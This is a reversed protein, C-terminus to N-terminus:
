PLLRFLYTRAFRFLFTRANKMDTSNSTQIYAGMPPDVTFRNVVGGDPV